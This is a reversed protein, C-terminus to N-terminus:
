GDDDDYIYILIMDYRYIIHYRYRYRDIVGSDLGATTERTAAARAAYRGEVNSLHRSRLADRDGDGRIRRSRDLM